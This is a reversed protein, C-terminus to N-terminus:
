RQAVLSFCCILQPVRAHHIVGNGVWITVGKCIMGADFENFRGSMGNVICWMANSM